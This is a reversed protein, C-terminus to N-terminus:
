WGSVGRGRRPNENRVERSEADLLDVRWVKKGHKNTIESVKTTLAM